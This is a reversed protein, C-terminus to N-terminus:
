GPVSGVRIRLIKWCRRERPGGPLLVGGASLWGVSLATESAPHASKGGALVPARRCAEREQWTRSDSTGAYALRGQDHEVNGGRLAEDQRQVCQQACGCGIGVRLLDREHPNVQRHTIIIIARIIEGGNSFVCTLACM